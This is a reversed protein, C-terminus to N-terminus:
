YQPSPIRQWIGLHIHCSIVLKEPEVSRPPSQQVSRVFHTGLLVFLPRGAPGNGLLQTFDPGLSKESTPVQGPLNELDELLMDETNPVQKASSAVPVVNILVPDEKDDDRSGATSKEQGFCDVRCGDM